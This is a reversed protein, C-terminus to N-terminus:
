RCRCAPAARSRSRRRRDRTPTRRARHVRPRRGQRRPVPVVVLDIGNHVTGAYPVDLNDARQADSIAVLHVHQALSRTSCATRSPGRVTCRTCSPRTAACCRAASRGSSARRPRARRRLRRGAPVVVLAHIRTTGPTASSARTPRSPADALRAEGQHALRGSAFLTVDHGADVLGDALLSVVLEIGGYGTPPFPSGSPHSSRSACRESALATATTSRSAHKAIGCGHVVLALAVSPPASPM